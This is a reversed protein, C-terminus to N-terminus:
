KKKGTMDWLMQFVSKFVDVMAPVAIVVALSTLEPSVILVKDNFIDITSKFTYKEPLLRVDRLLDTETPSANASDATILVRTKIKQHARDKRYQVFFEPAIGQWAQANGLADYSKSKYELLIDGYFRKLEDVTEIFRLGIVAAQKKDFAELQPIFATFSQLKKEYHDAVRQPKEAHYVRKSKKLYVSVFGKETLSKLITYVTTRKVGATQAIVSATGPGNKLAAVYIEAEQESLGLSTLANKEEM